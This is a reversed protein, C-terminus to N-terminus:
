GYLTHKLFRPKSEKIVYYCWLIIHLFINLLPFLYVTNNTRVRAYKKWAKKFLFSKMKLKSLEPPFIYNPFLIVPLFIMGEQIIFTCLLYIVSDLLYHDGFGISLKRFDKKSWLVPVSYDWGNSLFFKCYFGCLNPVLHRWYADIAVEHMEVLVCLRDYVAQWLSLSLVVNWGKELIDASFRDTFTWGITKNWITSANSRRLASECRTIPVNSPKFNIM